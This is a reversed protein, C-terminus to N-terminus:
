PKPLKIVEDIDKHTAPKYGRKLLDIAHHYISWVFTNNPRKLAIYTYGNSSTKILKM